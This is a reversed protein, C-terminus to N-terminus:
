TTGGRPSFSTVLAAMVAVTILAAGLFVKRDGATLARRVDAVDRAVVLDDMISKGMQMARTGLDRMPLDVLESSRLATKRADNVVRDVTDLARKEQSMLSQYVDSPVISKSPGVNGMGDTSVLNTSGQIAQVFRVYEPDNWPLPITPDPRDDNMSEAMTGLGYMRQVDNEVIDPGKM